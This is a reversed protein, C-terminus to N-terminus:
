GSASSPLAMPTFAMTTAAQEAEPGLKPAATRAASGHCHTNAAYM